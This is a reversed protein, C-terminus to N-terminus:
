RVPRSWEDDPDSREFRVGQGCDPCNFLQFEVESGIVPITKMTGEGSLEMETECVSCAPPERVPDTEVSM